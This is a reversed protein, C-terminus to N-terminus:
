TSIKGAIGFALLNTSDPDEKEEPEAPHDKRDKAVEEEFRLELGTHYGGGSPPDFDLNSRSPNM